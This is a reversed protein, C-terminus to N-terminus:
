PKYSLHYALFIRIIGQKKKGMTTGHMWINDLDKKIKV